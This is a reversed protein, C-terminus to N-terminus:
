ATKYFSVAKQMFEATVNFYEALSYINDYGEKVARKLSREPVLKKIAWLTARREHKERIDFPSYINYFSATECHGLEHALCVREDAGKINHDLAVFMQDNLNISVSSNEKLNFRDVIIGRRDALNYLEVTEM